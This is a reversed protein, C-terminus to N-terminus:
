LFKNSKEVVCASIFQKGFNTSHVQRRKIKPKRDEYEEEIQKSTSVILDDKELADYVGEVTLANYEPIDLLGLRCLNDLYNPTLAAYDCGAEKGIHSYNSIADVGGRSHKKFEARLTIVPYNTQVSFLRMIRAEDPSMNRVIEVFGPHAYQATASDISTALLNAYLDSLSEEHGTYRLSELAPGAVAPNPTALREEPVGQLKSAVRTEVFERIQDYGWVLASVPALAMNVARAVTELSKGVEKAAPQLADQYVPVAEVLGRVAEVAKSVSDKKEDNTMATVSFDLTVCSAPLKGLSVNCTQAGNTEM